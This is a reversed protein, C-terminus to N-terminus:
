ASIFGKGIGTVVAVGHVGPTDPIDALQKGSAPDVVLVHTGHTVFLHHTAPEYFLYDWGGEGGLVAKHKLEYAPTSASQDAAFCSVALLVLLCVNKMVNLM